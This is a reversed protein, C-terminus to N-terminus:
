TKQVRGHSHFVAQLILSREASFKELVDVYILNFTFSLFVIEMNLMKKPVSKPLHSQIFTSHIHNPDLKLHSGSLSCLLLSTIFLFM